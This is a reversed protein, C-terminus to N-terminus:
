NGVAIGFARLLEAHIGILNGHADRSLLRQILRNFQASHEARDRTFGFDANLDIGKRKGLIGRTRGEAGVAHTLSRALYAMSEHLDTRQRELM